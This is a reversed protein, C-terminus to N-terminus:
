EYLRALDTARQTKLDMLGSRLNSLISACSKANLVQRRAAIKAESAMSGLAEKIEASLRTREAEGGNKLALVDLQRRAGNLLTQNEHLYNRATREADAKYQHDEACVEVFALAAYYTGLVRGYAEIQGGSGKYPAAVVNAGFVSLLVAALLIRVPMEKTMTRRM